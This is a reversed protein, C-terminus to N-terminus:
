REGPSRGLWDWLAPDAYARPPFAVDLADLAAFAEAAERRGLARLRAVVQEQAELVLPERSEVDLNAESWLLLPLLHALPSEAQAHLYGLALLRLGMAYSTYNVGAQEHRALDPRPDGGLRALAVARALVLSMRLFDQGEGPQPPPLQRSILPVLEEARVRRDTLARLLDHPACYKPLTLAYLRGALPELKPEDFSAVLGELLERLGRETEGAALADWGLLMRQGPRLPAPLALEALEPGAREGSALRARALLLGGLQRPDPGSRPTVPLEALARELLPRTCAARGLHYQLTLALDIAADPRAALRARRALQATLWGGKWRLIPHGGWQGNLAELFGGPAWPDVPDLLLARTFNPFAALREWRPKTPTGELLVENNRHVGPVSLANRYRGLLEHAFALDWRREALRDLERFLPDEKPGAWPLMAPPRQQALRWAEREAARVERELQGLRAAPGSLHALAELAAEEAREAERGPLRRAALFVELQAEPDEPALAAAAAFDALALDARPPRARTLYYEGRGRHLRSLVAERVREDGTEEIAARALREAAAFRAEAAPGGGLAEALAADFGRLREALAVRAAAAQRTQEAAARAESAQARQREAEGQQERARAARAAVLGYTVGAGTLSLAALAAAIAAAVPYRRALRALSRLLTDREASVARGDLYRRLDELVAGPAEYRAQPDSATARRAIAALARPADRPPAPARGARPARGGLAVLLLAGLGYVDSRRTPEGGARVEPALHPLERRIPPPEGGAAQRLEPAAAGSLRAGEWGTVWVRGFSGVWVCDPGLQGHVVGRESAHTVAAAAALVARVRAPLPAPEDRQALEELLEGEVPDLSYFARGGLTGVDHVKPIAPHDLQALLRAHRWSSSADSGLLRLEVERQIRRDLARVAADSPGPEGRPEYREGGLGLLELDVAAGAPPLSVPAVLTRDDPAGAVPPRAPGFSSAGSPAVSPAPGARTQEGPSPSPAGSLSGSAWPALSEGSRGRPDFPAGPAAPRAVPAILGSAGEAAGVGLGALLADAAVRPLLGRALAAGLLASGGYALGRAAGEQWLRAVM